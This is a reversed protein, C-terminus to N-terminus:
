GELTKFIEKAENPEYNRWQSEEIKKIKDDDFRYKIIKAPSGVAIAYPPINKNIFSNAWIVAWNGIKVWRRITVWNWIWVDNWIIVDWKTLTERPSDYFMSNLSIRNIDHEGGGILVNNAISCYNWIYSKTIWCRYWIYTYKWITTSFDIISNKQKKLKYISLYKKIKKFTENINM